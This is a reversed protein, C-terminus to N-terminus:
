STHLKFFDSLFRRSTCLKFFATFIKKQKYM